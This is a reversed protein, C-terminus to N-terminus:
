KFKFGNMFNWVYFVHHFNMESLIVVYFHILDVDKDLLAFKMNNPSFMLGSGSIHCSLYESRIQNFLVGKFQDDLEKVGATKSIRNPVVICVPTNSIIRKKSEFNM